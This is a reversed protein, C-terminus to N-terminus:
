ISILEVCYWVILLVDCLLKINEIKGVTEGGRKRGKGGENEYFMFRKNGENYKEVKWKISKIQQPLSTQFM